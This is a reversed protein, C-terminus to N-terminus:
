LLLLLRSSLEVECRVFRITQSILAYNHYNQRDWNDNDNVIIGYISNEYQIQTLSSISLKSVFIRKQRFTQICIGLADYLQWGCWQLVRYLRISDVYNRFSQFVFELKAKHM